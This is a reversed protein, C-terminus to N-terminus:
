WGLVRQRSSRILLERSGGPRWGTAQLLAASVNDSTWTRKGLIFAARLGWCLPPPPPRWYKFLSEACGIDPGQLAIGLMWFSVSVDKVLQLSQCEILSSLVSLVATKGGQWEVGRERGSSEEVATVALQYSIIM